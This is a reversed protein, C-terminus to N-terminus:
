PITIPQVMVNKSILKISLRSSEENGNEPFVMDRITETNPEYITLITCNFNFNPIDFKKKFIDHLLLGEILSINWVNPGFEFALVTIAIM